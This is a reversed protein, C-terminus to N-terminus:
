NIISSKNYNFSMKKAQQHILGTGPANRFFIDRNSYYEVDDDNNAEKKKKIYIYIGISVLIISSTLFIVKLNNEHKFALKKKHFDHIILHITKKISILILHQIKRLRIM